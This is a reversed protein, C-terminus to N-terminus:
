MSLMDNICDIIEPSLEGVQLNERWHKIKNLSLDIGMNSQYIYMDCIASIINFKVNNDNSCIFIKFLFDWLSQITQSDAIVDRKYPSSFLDNVEGILEDLNPHNNVLADHIEEIKNKIFISKDIM